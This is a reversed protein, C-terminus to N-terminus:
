ELWNTLDRDILKQLEFIDERFFDVLNSRTEQSMESKVMQKEGTWNKKVRAVLGSPIVKKLANILGRSTELKYLLQNKPDGSVNYKYTTDFQFDDDVGTFTCINKLVQPQDSILDDYLFVKVHEFSDLYAKVQATYFGSHKYKWTWLWNQAEREM